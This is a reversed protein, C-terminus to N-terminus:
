ISVSARPDTKEMEVCEVPLLPAPGGPPYDWEGFARLESSIWSTIRASYHFVKSLHNPASCVISPDRHEGNLIGAKLAHEASIELYEFHDEDIRKQWQAIIQEGQPLKGIRTKTSIEWASAASIIITNVPKEILSRVADSLESEASWWWLLCHTDLLYRSM